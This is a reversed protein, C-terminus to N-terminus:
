QGKRIDKDTLRLGGSYAHNPGLEMCRSIGTKRLTGDSYTIRNIQSTQYTKDKGKRRTRAM